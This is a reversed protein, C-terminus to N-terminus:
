SRLTIRPGRPSPEAIRETKAMETQRYEDSYTQLLLVVRECHLSISSGVLVYPPLHGLTHMHGYRPDQSWTLCASQPSQGRSSKHM